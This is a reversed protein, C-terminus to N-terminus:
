SPRTKRLDEVSRIRKKAHSVGSRYMNQWTEYDDQSLANRNGEAYRSQWFEDDPKATAPMIRRVTPRPERAIRDLELLDRAGERRSRYFECAGKDKSLTDYLGCCFAKDFANM